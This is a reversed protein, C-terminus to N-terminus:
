FTTYFDKLFEKPIKQFFFSMWVNGRFSKESIEEYLEELFAALLPQLSESLLKKM